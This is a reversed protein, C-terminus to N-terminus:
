RLDPSADFLRRHEGLAFRDTMGAVFDGILRLRRREDRSTAAERWHEPLAAPDSRYRAVLDRVLGQASTMVKMVRQHRYLNAFLFRRLLLLEALFDKSFAVVPADAARIDDPHRPQLSALRSRSEAVADAIMITILRRVVAYIRRDREPATATASAEDLLRALLPVSSLDSVAILGARLGDDIDHTMWAIDDALAAVQAEASAFRDLELSLQGDIRRVAHCLSVDGPRRGKAPPGNHKVLGELTEWSLNLGNFEQYKNELATVIRFSQVNHDFGGCEALLTDLAEEGAHGFPPHGLDHALALGEALDEDLRLQRAMTRAIQAVELSHTLRTRYHDGEHFVFMQTKHILRRFASSHLIRDRDRQLHSRTPCPPEAFVRGRSPVASAAYPAPDRAGPALDAGYAALAGGVQAAIDPTAILPKGTSNPIHRV